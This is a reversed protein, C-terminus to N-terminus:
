REDHDPQGNQIYDLGTGTNAFNNHMDYNDVGGRYNLAGINRIVGAGDSSIQTGSVDTVVSRFLVGAANYFDVQSPTPSESWGMFMGHADHYDYAGKHNPTSEGILSWSVDYYDYGGDARRVARSDEAAPLAAALALFASVLFIPFRWPM